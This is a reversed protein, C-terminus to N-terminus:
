AKPEAGVISAAVGPTAAPPKDAVLPAPTKGDDPLNAHGVAGEVTRLRTEIDDLRKADVAPEKEVADLRADYQGRTSEIVNLRGESATERDEVLSIRHMNTLHEAEVAELRDRLDVLGAALVSFRKSLDLPSPPPTSTLFAVLDDFSPAGSATPM